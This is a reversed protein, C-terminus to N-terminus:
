ALQEALFELPHRVPMAIGNALHLRCGINASLIESAALNQVAEIIPERLTAARAPENLMHTGAAGCCGTDPLDILTLDPVQALLRRLAPGTRTVSRQTCPLHLAIRRGQASRFRLGDSRAELFAVADHVEAVDDLSHSLTEQCGSSLSLVQPRHTFATRNQAALREAQITDGAHVAATGCCTQGEPISAEVGAAALLRILAARVPPEYARAICGVFVAPGISSDSTPALPHIPPRILPRLRTPLIPFAARYVALLRTLLGPKALLHLTLRDRWRLPRRVFQEARAGALLAGYEVGAPCVSECRRCGLCHDLHLDGIGSPPLLGTALAKVYAIRGRPSEAETADLRYTPCHPLCLGCQVCRDAMDALPTASRAPPAPQALM